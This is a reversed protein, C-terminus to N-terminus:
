AIASEQTRVGLTRYYYIRLLTCSDHGDVIGLIKFVAAPNLQKAQKKKYSKWSHSLAEELSSYQVAIKDMKHHAPNSKPPSYWNICLRPCPKDGPFERILTITSKSIAFSIASCDM